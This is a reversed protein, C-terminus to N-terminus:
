GGDHNGLRPPENPPVDEGMELHRVEHHSVISGLENVLLESNEEGIVLDSVVEGGDLVGLGIVLNFHGILCNELPQLLSEIPCLPM